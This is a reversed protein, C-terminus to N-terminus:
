LSQRKQLVDRRQSFGLGNILDGTFDDGGSQNRSTGGQIGRVDGEGRHMLKIVQESPIAPMDM